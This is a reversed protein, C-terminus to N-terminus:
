SLNTFLLSTINSVYFSNEGDMPPPEPKEAVCPSLEASTDISISAAYNNNSSSFLTICLTFIIAITKINNKYM